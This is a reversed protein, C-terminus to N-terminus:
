AFFRRSRAASYGAENHAPIIVSVTPSDTSTM